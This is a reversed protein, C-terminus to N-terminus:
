NQGVEGMDLGHYSRNLLHILDTFDIGLKYFKNKQFLNATERIKIIIIILNNAPRENYHM